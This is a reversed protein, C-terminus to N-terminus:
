LAAPDVRAAAFLQGPPAPASRHRARALAAVPAQGAPRREHHGIREFRAHGFAAGRPRAARGPRCAAARGPSGRRRNGTDGHSRLPRPGAGTIRVPSAPLPAIVGDRAAPTDLVSRTIGAHSPALREIEDWLEAASSVGIGGSLRDALEAAVMWDPWCQGPSVLKQALRTIRGEINTTTGTREHAIAVPLVVDALAASPSLFGDVAVVFAAGSLAEQALTRDPFDGVPDSGVLVVADMSGDGLAQLMATADRGRRSPVSGWAAEYWARGDDLSVRGPLLGPALGMDLAGMVNGRRLAPLFRAKPWAEALTTAAEAVLAGDEALSPRGIVVVVGDGDAGAHELARRAAGWADADVSDPHEAGSAALARALATVEGPRYPLVATAFESLASARAALEVVPVGGDVAAGRLRLFLLPLEERLDGSLVVVCSAACAEDITARPLALVVEAPLGDGLQADVSDTGIVSKALKAWAYADENSLRAGGLM